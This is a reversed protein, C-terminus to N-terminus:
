IDSHTAPNAMFCAEYKCTWNQGLLAILSIFFSFFIKIM